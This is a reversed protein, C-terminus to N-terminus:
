PNTADTSTGKAPPERSNVVRHFAPEPGFHLLLGVRKKTATLYNILQRKAFPPLLETSKVEVLLRDDILFDARYFGALSRGRFWLSGPFTAINSAASSPETGL